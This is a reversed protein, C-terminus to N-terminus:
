WVGGAVPVARAAPDPPPDPDVYGPPHLFPYAGLDFADVFLRVPDPLPVSVLREGFVYVRAAGVSVPCTPTLTARLYAAVPCGRSEGPEGVFVRRALAWAVQDATSGLLALARTVGDADPRYIPYIIHLRSPSTM